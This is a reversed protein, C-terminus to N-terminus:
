SKKNVDIGKYELAEYYTCQSLMIFVDFRSIVAECMRRVSRIRLITM